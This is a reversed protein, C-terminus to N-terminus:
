HKLSARPTEVLELAIERSKPRLDLHYELFLALAPLIESALLSDNPAASPPKALEWQQIAALTAPSLLAQPEPEGPRIRCRSCVIGGSRVGLFFPTPAKAPEHLARCRPCRDIVPALGVARLLAWEFWAIQLPLNQSHPLTDLATELLSFTEAHPVAPPTVSATLDCFWSACAAARWNYRLPARIAIPAVEKLILLRDPPKVYYLLECTYGLDLQGLFLSKPRLAGKAVFRLRGDEQTLCDALLSTKSWPSIRLVIGETKRIM